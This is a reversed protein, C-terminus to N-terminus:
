IGYRRSSSKSKKEGKRAVIYAKLVGLRKWCEKMVLEEFATRDKGSDSIGEL